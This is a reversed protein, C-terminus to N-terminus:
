DDGMLQTRLAQIADFAFSRHVINVIWLPLRGRPDAHFVLELRTRKEDLARLNYRSEMLWARVVHKQEPMLSTIESRMIYSVEDKDRQIRLRYVFERDRAPWPADFHNYILKEDTSITQLVSARSLYPVWDPYTLEDEIIALVRDLGVEIEAVAKVKIISTNEVTASYVRIGLSNRIEQWEVAESESAASTVAISLLLSYVFLRM